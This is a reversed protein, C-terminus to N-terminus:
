NGPQDGGTLLGVRTMSPFAPYNSLAAGSVEEFDKIIQIM